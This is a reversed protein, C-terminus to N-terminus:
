NLIFEYSPLINGNQVSLAASYGMIILMSWKGPNLNVFSYNSHLFPLSSFHNTSISIM